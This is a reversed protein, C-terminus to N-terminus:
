NEINRLKIIKLKCADAEINHLREIARGMLGNDLREVMRSTGVKIIGRCPMHCESCDQISERKELSVKFDGHEKCNYTFWAM